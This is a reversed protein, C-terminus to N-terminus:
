PGDAGIGGVHGAAVRVELTFDRERLPNTPNDNNSKTGEEGDEGGDHNIQVLGKSSIGGHSTFVELLNVDINTAASKHRM